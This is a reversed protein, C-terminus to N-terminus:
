IVAAPRVRHARQLRHIDRHVLAQAVRVAAAEMRLAAVVVARTAAEEVVRMGAAVAALM